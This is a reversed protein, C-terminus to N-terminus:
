RNERERSARERCAQKDQRRVVLVFMPGDYARGDERAERYMPAWTERVFPFRDTVGCRGCTLPERPETM